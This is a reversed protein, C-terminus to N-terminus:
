LNIERAAHQAASWGVIRCLMNISDHDHLPSYHPNLNNMGVRRAAEQQELEWGASNYYKTLEGVKLLLVNAFQEEALVKTRLAWAPTMDTHADAHAVFQMADNYIRSVVLDKLSDGRFLTSVAYLLPLNWIAEPRGHHVGRTLCNYGWNVDSM